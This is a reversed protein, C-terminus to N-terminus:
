RCFGARVCGLDRVLDLRGARVLPRAAPSKGVSDFYCCQGICRKGSGVILSAEIRYTNEFEVDRM